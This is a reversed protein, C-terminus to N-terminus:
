VETLKRNEDGGGEQDCGSNMALSVAELYTDVFHHQSKIFAVSDDINTQKKM